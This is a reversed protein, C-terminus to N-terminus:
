KKMVGTIRQSSKQYGFEIDGLKGQRNKRILMELIV